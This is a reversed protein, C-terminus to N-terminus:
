ITLDDLVLVRFHSCAQNLGHVQLELTVSAGVEARASRVSQCGGDTAPWCRQHVDADDAPEQAASTKYCRRSRLLAPANMTAFARQLDHFGYLHCADSYENMSHCLASPPLRWRKADQQALHERIRDEDDANAFLRGNIRHEALHLEDVQALGQPCQAHVHAATSFVLLACFIVSLRSIILM